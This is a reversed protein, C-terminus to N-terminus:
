NKRHSRSWSFCTKESFVKLGPLAGSRKVRIKMIIAKRTWAHISMQSAIEQRESIQQLLKLLKVTLNIMYICVSNLSLQVSECFRLKKVGKWFECYLFM